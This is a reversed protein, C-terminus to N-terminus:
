VEVTAIIAASLDGDTLTAMEEPIDDDNSADVASSHEDVGLRWADRCTGAATIM